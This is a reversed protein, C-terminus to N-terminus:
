KSDATIAGYSDTATHRNLAQDYWCLSNADEDLTKKHSGDCYPQNKSLGCACIWKTETGVTIQYPANRHRKILRPM